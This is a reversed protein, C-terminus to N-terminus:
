FEVVLTIKRNPLTMNRNLEYYQEHIGVVLTMNRNLEYYQEHLEVVLAMNRNLENYQGHDRKTQSLSSM